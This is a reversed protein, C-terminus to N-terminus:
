IKMIKLISSIYYELIMMLIMKLILDKKLYEMITDKDNYKRGMSFSIRSDKTM